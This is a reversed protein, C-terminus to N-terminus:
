NYIYKNHESITFLSRERQQDRSQSSIRPNVNFILLQPVTIVWKTYLHPFRIIDVPWFLVCCSVIMSFFLRSLVSIWARRFYDVLPTVLDHGDSAYCHPPCLSCLGAPGSHLERTGRLLVIFVKGNCHFNTGTGIKPQSNYPRSYTWLQWFETRYGLGGLQIIEWRIQSLRLVWDLSPQPLQRWISGEGPTSALSKFVAM